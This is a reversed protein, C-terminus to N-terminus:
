FGQVWKASKSSKHNGIIQDDLMNIVPNQCVIIFDNGSDVLKAISTGFHLPSELVFCAFIPM